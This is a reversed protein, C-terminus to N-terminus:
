AERREYPSVRTRFAPGRQNLTVPSKFWDPGAPPWPNEGTPTGVEFRAGSLASPDVAFGDFDSYSTALPCLAEAAEVRARVRDLDGAELMAMYLGEGRRLSEAEASADSIPQRLEIFTEGRALRMVGWRKHDDESRWVVPLGFLYDWRELATDLDHVVLVLQRVGRIPETRAEEWWRAGGGGTWGPTRMCDGLEVLLGHTGKPHVWILRYPGASTVSSYAGSILAQKELLDRLLVEYSFDAVRFCCFYMGEGRQKIFRDANVGPAVPSTVQILHDGARLDFLQLDVSSDAGRGIVPLEFLASLRQTAAEGDAAVLELQGITDLM